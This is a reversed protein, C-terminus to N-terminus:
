RKAGSIMLWATQSYKWDRELERVTLSIGAAAADEDAVLGDALACAAAFSDHPM